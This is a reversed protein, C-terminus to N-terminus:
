AGPLLSRVASAISSSQEALGGVLREFWQPGYPTYVRVREGEGLLRDQLSQQRGLFFTYEFTQRPRGYRDAVAAVIEVIRPDHTAFSPEGGGRLLAKACRVYSKDVEAPQTFCSDPAAGGGGKVLRVRHDALRRCTDEANRLMAPITVGVPTGASALADAWELTLATDVGPGSGLMVAVDHARASDAIGRLREQAAERDITSGLANPLVAAECVGALGATAIASVLTLYEAAVEDAQDPTEVRPTARELSVLFGRDALDMAVALAEDPTDGGVLRSVVDRAVPTRSIASGVTDNRALAALAERIV